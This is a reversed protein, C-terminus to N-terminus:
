SDKGSCFGVFYSYRSHSRKDGSLGVYESSQDIRWMNGRTSGKIHGEYSFPARIWEWGDCVGRQPRKHVISQQMVMFEEIRQNSLAGALMSNWTGDWCEVTARLNRSLAFLHPFAKSLIGQTSWDDTWYQLM